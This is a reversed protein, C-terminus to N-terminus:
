TKKTRAVESLAADLSSKATTIALQLATYMALTLAPKPFPAGFVTSQVSASFSDIADLVDKLADVTDNGLLLQQDAGAGLDVRLQGGQKYVELVDEDDGIAVTFRQGDKVRIRVQGYGTDSADETSGDVYAQTTDILLEGRENVRIECGMHHTYHEGPRPNGRTEFEGERWGDGARVIRNSREHSIAGIIIPYDPNSELFDVIV